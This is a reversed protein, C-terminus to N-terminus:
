EQNKKRKRWISSVKCKRAFFDGLSLSNGECTYKLYITLSLVETDQQLYKKAKKKDMIAQFIRQSRSWPQSSKQLNM